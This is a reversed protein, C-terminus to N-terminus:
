KLVVVRRGLVSLGRMEACARGAFSQRHHVAGCGADDEEGTSRTTTIHGRGSRKTSRGLLVEGRKAGRAAVGGFIIGDGLQLLLYHDPMLVWALLRSDGLVEQATIANAAACAVGFRTFFLSAVM